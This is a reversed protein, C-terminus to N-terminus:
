GGGAAAASGRDRASGGPGETTGRRAQEGSHPAAAALPGLGSMRTVVDLRESLAEGGIRPQGTGFSGSVWIGGAARVAQAVRPDGLDEFWLDIGETAGRAGQLLAASMGVVLYRVGLEDLERLLSREGESLISDAM